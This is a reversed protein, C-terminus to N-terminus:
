IFEINCYYLVPYEIQALEIFTGDRRGDEYVHSVDSTKYLTRLPLEIYQLFSSVTSDMYLQSVIDSEEIRSGLYMNNFSENIANRIANQKLVDGVQDDKLKIRMGLHIYIPTAERILIDTTIIRNDEKNFLSDLKNITDNYSYAVTISDGNEADNKVIKISTVERSTNKYQEDEYVIEYIGTAGLDYQVKKTDNIISLIDILPINISSITDDIIFTDETSYSTGNVTYDYSVKVSDGNEWQTNSGSSLQPVVLVTQNNANTYTTFELNTVLDKSNHAVISVLNVNNYVLPLRNSKSILTITSSTITSGKTYIDIKGGIHGTFTKGDITVTASDRTMMADGYGAVYADKIEPFNELIFQIYGPRTGLQRSVYFQKIRSAYQENTEKDTGGSMPLKNTVYAINASFPNVIDSISGEGINYQVGVDVAEVQVSIEYLFTTPNYYSYLESPTFEFRQTTVYMLGDSSKFTTGEPVLLSVTDSITKLAIVSEGFAKSGGKRTMMYNGQGIEDMEEESMNAANDLNSMMEMSNVEEIIPSLIAKHPNIIIDNIPSSPTTDIDPYKAKLENLMYDQIFSNLDSVNIAAM